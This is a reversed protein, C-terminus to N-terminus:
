DRLPPLGLGAASGPIVGDGCGAPLVELRLLVLEIAHDVGDPEHQPGYSSSAIRSGNSPCRLAAPLRLPRLFRTGDPSSSARDTQWRFRHLVPLVRPAVSM